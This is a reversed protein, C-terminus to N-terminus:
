NGVESVMSLHVRAGSTPMNWWHPVQVSPCVGITRDHLWHALEHKIILQWSRGGYVLPGQSWFHAPEMDTGDGIQFGSVPASVLHGEM